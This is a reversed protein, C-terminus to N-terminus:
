YIHINFMYAQEFSVYIYGSPLKLTPWNTFIDRDTLIEKRRKSFTSKWKETVLEPPDRNHM